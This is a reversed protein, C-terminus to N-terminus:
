PTPAHKHLCLQLSRLYGPDPPDDLLEDLIPRIYHLSRIPPLPPASDSRLLRRLAALCLATEVLHLPVALRELHAALERDSRRVHGLTHPLRRYRDLVRQVYPTM